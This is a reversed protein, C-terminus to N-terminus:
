SLGFLLRQKLQDYEAQELAGKDLLEKLRVLDAYPPTPLYLPRDSRLDDPFNNPDFAYGIRRDAGRHVATLAWVLSVIWALGTVGFVLNVILIALRDHHQRAYAVITPAFYIGLLFPMLIVLGVVEDVIEDQAFAQETTAALALMTLLPVSLKSCFSRASSDTSM